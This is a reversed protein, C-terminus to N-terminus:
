ARQLRFTFCGRAVSRADVFQTKPNQLLREIVAEPDNGNVVEADIM